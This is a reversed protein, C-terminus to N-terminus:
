KPGFIRDLEARDSVVHVEESGLRVNFATTEKQVAPAKGEPDLLLATPVTFGFQLQIIREQDTFEDLNSNDNMNGDIYGVCYYSDMPRRSEYPSTEAPLLEESGQGQAIAPPLKGDLNVVFSPVSHSSLCSYIKEIVENMHTHYQTQIRVTYALTGRKPLPVTYVDYIASDRLRRTSIPRSYDANALDSTKSAVKRSLQMRPVDAGLATGKTPDTGTRRIQIVPLILRGDKDRIGQKDAAAVWREGSAMKVTVAHRDGQPTTVHAAVVDEFWAKVGGDVARIGIHRNTPPLKETM